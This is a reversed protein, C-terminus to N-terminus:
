DARPPHLRDYAKTSAQCEELHRLAESTPNAACARRAATEERMLRLREQVVDSPEESM